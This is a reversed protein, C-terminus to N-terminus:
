SAVVVLPLSTTINLFVYTYVVVSVYAYVLSTDYKSTIDPHFVAIIHNTLSLYVFLSILSRQLVQWFNLSVPLDLHPFNSALVTSIM